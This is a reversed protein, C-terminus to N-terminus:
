KVSVKLDNDINKRDFINFPLQVLDINFNNYHLTIHQLRYLLNSNKYNISNSKNILRDLMTIIAFKITGLAFRM